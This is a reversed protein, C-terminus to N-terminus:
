LHFLVIATDTEEHLSYRIDQIIHLPNIWSVAVLCQKEFLVSEGYLTHFDFPSQFHTPLNNSRCLTTTSLIKELLFRM